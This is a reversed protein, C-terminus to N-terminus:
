GFLYTSLREREYHCTCSKGASFHHICRTAQFSWIVGIPVQRADFRLDDESDSLIVSEPIIRSKARASSQTFPGPKNDQMDTVGTEAFLLPRKGNDRAVIEIEPEFPEVQQASQSFSPSTPQAQLVVRIAESFPSQRAEVLSALCSPIASPESIDSPIPFCSM